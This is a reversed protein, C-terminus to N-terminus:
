YLDSHTGTRILSIHKVKVNLDWILLWDPLIHAEWFGVFDGKLKHPKYSAPLIGDEELLKVAKKLLDINLGRKSCRVYDKEFKNTTDISYM